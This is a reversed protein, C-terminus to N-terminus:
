LILIKLDKDPIDPIEKQNPDVQTSNNHVKSATMNNQKKM